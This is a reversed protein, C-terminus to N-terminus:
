EGLRWLLCSFQNGVGCGLRHLLVHIIGVYLPMTGAYGHQLYKYKYYTREMVLLNRHPVEVGVIVRYQYRYAWGRQMRMLSGYVSGTVDGSTLM